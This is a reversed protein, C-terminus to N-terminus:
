LLWAMFQVSLLAILAVVGAIWDGRNMRHPTMTLLRGRYGRALMAGYVRDSRDLSRSFLQGVMHGTVSARWRISGGRQSTGKQRGSRASRARMMRQAEDVLVFLYRYMFSIINVLIAPVRLHNMAHILDPFQTTATLLIAAQVALWGRALVSAFRYIGADSIAFGYSGLHWSIVPDGTYNFLLSLATLMFPLIILSRKFVVRYPLNALYALMWLLLWTLLFAVWAGDPLLLTTLVFILTVVIKLRPDLHHLLSDQHLYRDFTHAM